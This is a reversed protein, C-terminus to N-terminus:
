PRSRAVRARAGRRLSLPVPPQRMPNAAAVEDMADLINRLNVILAGHVPWRPSLQARSGLSDVLADLRRRVAHLAEPDAECTARGADGLLSSWQELFDADPVEGRDLEAGWTRALSRVEAVAQEMRRLLDQWGQPDRVDRARRRPNMRSSEQAQRVLSWTHDIAEDLDRTHDIWETVTQTTATGERLTGAMDVLLEGIGDDLRDMAAITTRSRLPPWVLVNVLLGIGVGIGTDVLRTLLVADNGFGTTLVVLGTTAVITIDGGFWRVSGIVLCAVMLTAVAWTTPGLVHGIASALVVAVVAAAVQQVGRSFTRYVTAHVVLLAAWPALFPQSLDLVDAAVVWAVVAALVTKALQVVDNWFVPDRLRSM